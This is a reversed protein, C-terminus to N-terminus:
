ARWKNALAMIGAEYSGMLKAMDEVAEKELKETTYILYEELPVEVGYVNSYAGGLAIFCEKYKRHPDLNQNVSLVQAVDKENLGLLAAIEDFRNAFKRQDMLIKCDSNAIISEKVVPSNLIDDVEQTVVWAEGYFKRVTKFLYKIFDAM